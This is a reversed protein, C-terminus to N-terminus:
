DEFKSAILVAARVLKVETAESSDSEMGSEEEEEEIGEGGWSNERRGQGLTGRDSSVRSEPRVAPELLRLSAAVGEARSIDSESDSAYEELASSASPVSSFSQSDSVSVEQAEPLVYVPDYDEFGEPDFDGPSAFYSPEIAISPHQQIEPLPHPPFPRSPSSPAPGPRSPSLSPTRSSSGYYSSLGGDDSDQVAESLLPVALTRRVTPLGARQIEPTPPLVPRADETGSGRLESGLLPISNAKEKPTGKVTRSRARSRSPSGLPPSPFSSISDTLPPSLTLSFGIAKSLLDERWAQEQPEPKPVSSRRRHPPRQM